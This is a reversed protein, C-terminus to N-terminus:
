DSLLVTGACAVAWLVSALTGIIFRESAGEGQGQRLEPYRGLGKIAMVVAVGEPWGALLSLCVLARELVGIVRGGRLRTGAGGPMTREALRLPGGGVVASLLALVVLVPRGLPTPPWIVASLLAAAQLVVVGSIVTVRWAQPSSAAPALVSGPDTVPFRWCVLGALVTVAVLGPALWSM